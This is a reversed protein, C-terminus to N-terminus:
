TRRQVRARFRRFMRLVHRSEPSLDLTHELNTRCEIGVEGVGTIGRGPVRRRNVRPCLILPSAGVSASGHRSISAHRVVILAIFFRPLLLSFPLSVFYMGRQTPVYLRELLNDIDYTAHAHHESRVGHLMFPKHSDYKVV